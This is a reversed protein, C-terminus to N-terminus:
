STFAMTAISITINKTKQLELCCAELTAGTTLVDDVLLVNKDELYHINNLLFKENVNKWRDMRQKLTQTEKAAVSQLLQDNFTAKLAKSIELGFKTNQNFGRKKLKTRAIPVPIVYDIKPLRKSAALEEGLWKGFLGGLGEHGKYKLQHILKQGLGERQYLLLSTGFQLPIRGYLAKELDNNPIATMEALPLDFRCKVCLMDENEVLPEDCGPCVEPFFLYYLDKLAQM